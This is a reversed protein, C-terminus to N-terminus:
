KVELRGYDSKNADLIRLKGNTKESENGQM